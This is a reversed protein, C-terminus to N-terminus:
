IETSLNELNEAHEELGELDPELIDMDCIFDASEWEDIFTDVEEGRDGEHWKESREDYEERLREAVEERFTEADETAVVFISAALVLKERDLPEQNLAEELATYQKRLDAVIEDRRNQELRTLKFAM